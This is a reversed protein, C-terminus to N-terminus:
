RGAFGAISAVLGDVHSEFGPRPPEPCGPVLRGLSDATRRQHFPNGPVAPLVGVPMALTALEADTVGRLTQGRM